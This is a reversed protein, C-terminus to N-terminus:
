MRLLFAAFRAATARSEGAVQWNTSRIAPCTYPLDAAHGLPNATRQHAAFATSETPAPAPGHLNIREEGSVGKLLTLWDCM